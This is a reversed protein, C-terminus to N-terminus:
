RRGRGSPVSRGSLDKIALAIFRDKDGSAWARLPLARTREDSPLERLPGSAIVSWGTHELRDIGDIEFAADVGRRASELLTGESTRVVIAREHLVFNVPRIEPAGAAPVCIRGVGAQQLLRLCEESSLTQLGEPDMM